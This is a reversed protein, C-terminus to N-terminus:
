GRISRIHGAESQILDARPAWVMDRQEAVSVMNMSTQSYAGRCGGCGIAESQLNKQIPTFTRICANSERPSRLKWMSGGEQPTAIGSGIYFRKLVRQATKSYRCTWRIKLCAMIAAGAETRAIAFLTKNRKTRLLKRLFVQDKSPKSSLAGTVEKSIWQKM